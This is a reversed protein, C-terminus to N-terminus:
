TDYGYLKALALVESLLHSPLDDWDLVRPDEKRNTTTSVGGPEIDEVRHRIVKPQHCLENWHLWYLTCRELPTEGEEIGHCNAYIYRTWSEAPNAEEFLKYALLSAITPLPHRVQHMIPVGPFMKQVRPIWPAAEWSVEGVEGWNDPHSEVNFIREHDCAIGAQKFVQTTFVTGSRACGTILFRM